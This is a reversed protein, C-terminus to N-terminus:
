YNDRRLAHGARSLTRLVPSWRGVLPTTERYRWTYISHGLLNEPDDIQQYGRFRLSGRGVYDVCPRVDGPIADGSRVIRDSPVVQGAALLVAAALLIM